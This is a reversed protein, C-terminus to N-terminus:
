IELVAMAARVAGAKGIKQHVERVEGAGGAIFFVVRGDGLVNACGASFREEGVVVEDGGRLSEGFFGQAGALFGEPTVAFDKGNFVGGVDDREALAPSREQGGRPEPPVV